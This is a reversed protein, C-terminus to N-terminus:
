RHYFTHSLLNVWLLFMTYYAVVCNTENHTCGYTPNYNMYIRDTGSVAFCSSAEVMLQRDTGHLTLCCGNKSKMSSMNTPLTKCHYARYQAICIQSTEMGITQTDAAVAKRDLYNDDNVYLHQVSTQTNAAVAKRDLYNDALHTADFYYSDNGSGLAICSTDGKTPGVNSTSINETQQHLTSACYKARLDVASFNQIQGTDINDDLCSYQRDFSDSDVYKAGGTEFEATCDHYVRCAVSSPDQIQGV